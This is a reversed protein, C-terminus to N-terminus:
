GAVVRVSSSTHSRRSHKPAPPAGGFLRDGAVMWTNLSATAKDRSKRRRLEARAAEAPQNISYKAALREEESDPGAERTNNQRRWQPGTAAVSTKVGDYYYTTRREFQRNYPLFAASLDEISAAADHADDTPPDTEPDDFPVYTAPISSMRKGRQRRRQRDNSEVDGDYALDITM